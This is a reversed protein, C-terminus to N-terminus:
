SSFRIWLMRPVPMKTEASQLGTSALLWPVEHRRVHMCPTSNSITHQTPTFCRNFYHNPAALSREGRASLNLNLSPSLSLSVSLVFSGTHLVLTPLLKRRHETKGGRTSLGHDTRACKARREVPQCLGAAISDRWHALNGDGGGM